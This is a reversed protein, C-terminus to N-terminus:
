AYFGDPVGKPAKLVWNETLGVIWQHKPLRRRLEWILNPYRDDVRINSVYLVEGGLPQEGQDAMLMDTYNRVWDYELFAVIEGNREIKIFDSSITPIHELLSRM